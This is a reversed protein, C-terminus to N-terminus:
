AHHPVPPLIDGEDASVSFLPFFSAVQVVLAVLMMIVAFSGSQYPLLIPSFFLWVAAATTVFRAWPTRIWALLAAVIIIAGTIVASTLQYRDRFHYAAAIILVGMAMSTFRALTDGKEEKVKWRLDSVTQKLMM